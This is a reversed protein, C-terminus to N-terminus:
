ERESVMEFNGGAVGHGCVLGIPQHLLKSIAEAIAATILEYQGPFNYIKLYINDLSLQQTPM